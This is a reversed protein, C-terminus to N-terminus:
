NKGSISAFYGLAIGLLSLSGVIWPVINMSDRALVAVLVISSLCVGGIIAALGIITGNEMKNNEMQYKHLHDSNCVRIPKCAM